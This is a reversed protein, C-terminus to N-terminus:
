PWGGPILIAGVEAPLRQGHKWHSWCLQRLALMLLDELPPSDPRSSAAITDSPRIAAKIKRATSSAAGVSPPKKM